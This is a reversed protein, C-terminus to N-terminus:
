ETGSPEFCPLTINFLLQGQEAVCQGNCSNAIGQNSGQVAGTLTLTAEVIDKGPPCICIANSPITVWNATLTASMGAALGNPEVQCYVNFDSTLCGADTRLNTTLGSNVGTLRFLLVDVGGQCQDGNLFAQVAAGAVQAAPIVPVGNIDVGNIGLATGFETPDAGVINNFNISLTGAQSPLAPNGSLNLTPAPEVTFNATAVLVFLAIIAIMEKLYVGKINSITGM